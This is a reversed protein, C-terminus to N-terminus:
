LELKRPSISFKPIHSPLSKTTPTPTPSNQDPKSPSSVKKQPTPKPTSRFNGYVYGTPSVLQSLNGTSASRVLHARFGPTRIIKVSEVEGYKAVFEEFKM